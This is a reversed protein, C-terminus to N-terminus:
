RVSGSGHPPAAGHRPRSKRRGKRAVGSWARCEEGCHAMASALRRPIRRESRPEPRHGAPGPGDTPMQFGAILQLLTSKGCGSEGLVCLFEEQIVDLSIDELVSQRNHDAGFARNVKDLRLAFVIENTMVSTTALDMGASRLACRKAARLESQRTHRNGSMFTRIEDCKDFFRQFRLLGPPPPIPFVEFAKGSPRLHLSFPGPTTLWMQTSTTRCWRASRRSVRSRRGLRM